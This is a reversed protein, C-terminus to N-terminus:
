MPVVYWNAGIQRPFLRMASCKISLKFLDYNPDGEDQNIGKKCKFIQIPFIQTEHHGLGNMTTELLCKILMRAEPYTCLGYNVSSFVTQSGARSQMTNLNHCFSEMAQFTDDYTWKYAKDYIDRDDFGFEELINSVGGRQEIITQHEDYYKQLTDKLLVNDEQSSAKLLNKIFSKAVYPALDWDFTPFAQGGFMENQNSQLTIAALAAASGISQPQRLTGHGTAFTHDLLKKLPIQLCNLSIAYYDLDMNEM